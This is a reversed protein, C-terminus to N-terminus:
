PYRVSHIVARFVFDERSIVLDKESENSVRVQMTKSAPNDHEGSLIFSSMALGRQHFVPAVTFHAITDAPVELHHITLRISEGSKVTLEGGSNKSSSIDPRISVFHSSVEHFESNTEVRQLIMKKSYVM